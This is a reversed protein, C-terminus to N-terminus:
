RKFPPPSFAEVAPVAGKWKRVDLRVSHSAPSQSLSSTRRDHTLSNPNGHRDLPPTQSFDPDYWAGTWLFLCGPRVDETVVAGALSAGRSLKKGQSDALCHRWPARRVRKIFAIHM